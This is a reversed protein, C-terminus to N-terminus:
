MQEPANGLGPCLVESTFVCVCFVKCKLYFLFKFAELKFVSHKLTYISHGERKREHGM